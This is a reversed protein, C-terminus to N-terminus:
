NRWNFFRSPKSLAIDEFRYPSGSCSNPSPHNSRPCATPEPFLRLHQGTGSASRSPTPSRRYYCRFFLPDQI